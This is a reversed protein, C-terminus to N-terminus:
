PQHRNATSDDRVTRMQPALPTRVVAKTGQAMQAEIQHPQENLKKLTYDTADSVGMAYGFATAIVALTIMMALIMQNNRRVAKRREHGVIQAAVHIETNTM